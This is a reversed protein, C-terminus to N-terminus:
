TSKVGKASRICEAFRRAADLVSDTGLIASLVAVGDCGASLAERVNDLNIGGIGIVPLATLPRIQRVLGTGCLMADQKSSTPFLAGVGFYDAASSAQFDELSAVSVGLIRKKGIWKRADKEPLDESGIHLGDADAALAVDLRDNIILPIGHRRTLELIARANEVMARTASVKDRYQIVDAGGELLEAAVKRIERGKLWSRDLVAYLGWSRKTKM